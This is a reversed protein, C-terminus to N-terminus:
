LASIPPLKYFPIQYEIVNSLDSLLAVTIFLLCLGLSFGGLIGASRLTKLNSEKGGMATLTSTALSVNYSVYVIASTWWVPTALTPTLSKLSEDVTGLQDYHTSLTMISIAIVSFIIIPSVIGLARVSSSFGFIVTALTMAAIILKGTTVSLGWYEHIAAGGGSFMISVCGFM